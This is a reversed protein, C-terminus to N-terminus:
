LGGAVVANDDGRYTRLWEVTERIGEELTYPNEGLLEFTRGTPTEYHTTM